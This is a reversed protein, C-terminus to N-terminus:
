KKKGSVTCKQSSTVNAVEINDNPLVTPVNWDRQLDDLLADVDGETDDLGHDTLQHAIDEKHPLDIVEETLFADEGLCCGWEEMLKISVQRGDVLVVTTTNLVELSTTTILVRAFDIRGKDVTCEDTRVFKGCHSVCLKFFKTNWAHIPTGYVRLWAVREYRVDEPSWKHVDSLFMSFFDVAENFINWVDANNRSRLFIRDGGMPIVEVHIIGADEVRQQISLTTEGTSVTAVIGSDAWEKDVPDSMYEKLGPSDKFAHPTPEQLEVLEEEFLRTTRRDVDTNLFITDTKKKGLRPRWEEVKQLIPSLGEERTKTHGRLAGNVQVDVKGVRVSKEGEGSRGKGVVSDVGEGMRVSKEGEGIVRAVEKEEALREERRRVPNSVVLPKRDNVVFRDFRAERAWVRLHGFWVNNLAKSLKNANKVNSFRVFGYVQGRANRQRAVYVDTLVGCM